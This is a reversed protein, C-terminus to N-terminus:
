VHARGIEDNSTPTDQTFDTGDVTDIFVVYPGTGTPLSSVSGQYYTGAAQAYAKFKALADSNYEFKSPNTTQTTANGYGSTGFGTITPSANLSLTAHGDSPEAIQIATTPPNASGCGGTATTFTAASGNVQVEGNVCIVCPPDLPPVVGYQLVAQVKRHSNLTNGNSPNWGVATVTREYQSNVPWAQWQVLVTFGGTGGLNNFTAGNTL